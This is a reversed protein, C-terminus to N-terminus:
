ILELSAFVQEAAALSADYYHEAAGEYIVLNLGKEGDILGIVTGRVALGNREFGTYDFRFADHGAVTAPRLNSVAVQSMGRTALLGEYLDVVDSAKMGTRFTPADEGQKRQVLPKGDTVKTIFTIGELGFGNVTWNELNANQKLASWQQAPEARFVGGIEHKKAPPVSAYTTCGALLAAALLCAALPRLHIV